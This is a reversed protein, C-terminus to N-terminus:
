SKQRVTAAQTLLAEAFSLSEQHSQGGALQALEERREEQNLPVVRVVTRVEEAIAVSGEEVSKQRSKRGKRVPEGGSEDVVQKGVRYHADAMAAVMPQHTVCLVQHQQGLQYLKEAIAQAVRGSVGVDIEDFVLTNVQDSQIFCAKLALLFRSMEGGSATEALPQLPEGPNPSFLFQIRDAGAASPEVQQLHVQFQVREMALPKLEAVLKSELSKATQKRLDTLKVCGKELTQRYKNYTAELSELSQGDGNILGLSAQIEDRYEILDALSRGYKRCLNKLQRIRQEVEELRQPDAEINEGYSNIQRGAEEVQALAESVMTLIPDVEPDYRLMDSLISEAKGLLDSCAQGAENEYLIQYVQYSQQQLEVSHSLRQQEQELTDIEDATTLNASNLERSQHEFLDLQELRDQEAKRRRELALRAQTAAEYAQAVEQRQALLKTGGFSDLWDRQLDPSGVQLTQGQATIEVLFPRLAEIQPKNVPVGNLRSRSRVSGRGATLERSCTLQNSDTAIQNEELWRALTPTLTFTAEVVARSTGTRILRQNAKGGLVADIADLIISKGAGTEGTLVNLGPQLRLDLRDILAFNEIHLATLM